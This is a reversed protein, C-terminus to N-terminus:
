LTRQAKYLAEKLDRLRPHTSMSTVNLRDYMIQVRSVHRKSHYQNALDLGRLALTVGDEINGSYAHAQAKIISYSGLDRLSRVPRMLDTQKYIELAKEPKWLMSYGQAQEQLVEVLNFQNCLANLDEPTERVLELANNIAEKFREEQGYPAHGRALVVWRIGKVCLCAQDASPKAAELRRVATEYLGRKRLIDGQYTMALTMIDHDGVEEGLTLMTSFHGMAADYHLRDFLIKGKMEYAYALIQQASRLFQGRYQTTANNLKEIWDDLSSVILNNNESYWILWSLKVTALSPELLAQFLVDDAESPSQAVSKHKPLSKGIADLRASTIELIEALREVEEWKELKRIGREVQSVYERTHGWKEAVEEQTWGRQTRAALVLKGFANEESM